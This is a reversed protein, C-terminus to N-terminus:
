VTPRDDSCMMMMRRCIALDFGFCGVSSNTMARDSLRVCFVM